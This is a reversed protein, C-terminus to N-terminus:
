QHCKSEQPIHHDIGLNPHAIELKLERSELLQAVPYTHVSFTIQLHKKIKKKGNFPDKIPLGQNSEIFKDMRHLALAATWSKRLSM